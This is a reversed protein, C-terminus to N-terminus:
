TESGERAGEALGFTQWGRLAGLVPAPEYEWCASPPCGELVGSDVESSYLLGVFQIDM